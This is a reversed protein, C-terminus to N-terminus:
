TLWQIQTKQLIKQLILLIQISAYVSIYYWLNYCKIWRWYIIGEMCTEAKRALQIKLFLNQIIGVFLLTMRLRDEKPLHRPGWKLNPQFWALPKLSSTSFTLLKCISLCVSTRPVFLSWFLFSKNLELLIFFIIHVVVVFVNVTQLDDPKM